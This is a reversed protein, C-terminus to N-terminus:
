SYASLSICLWEFRHTEDKAAKIVRFREQLKHCQEKLNELEAELMGRLRTPAGKKKLMDITLPSPIKAKTFLKVLNSYSSVLHEQQLEQESKSPPIIEILALPDEALTAEIPDYSDVGDSPYHNLTWLAMGIKAKQKGYGFLYYPFCKGKKIIAV